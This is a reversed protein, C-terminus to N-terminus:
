IRLPLDRPTRFRRPPAQKLPPGLHRELTLAAGVAPVTAASAPDFFAARVSSALYPGAAILHNCDEQAPVMLQGSAATTQGHCQPAAPEAPDACVFFDCVVATAPVGSLIFALLLTLLRAV